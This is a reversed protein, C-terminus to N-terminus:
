LIEKSPLKKFENGSKLWWVPEPYVKEETCAKLAQRQSETEQRYLLDNLRMRAWLAAQRRELNEPRFKAKLRARM